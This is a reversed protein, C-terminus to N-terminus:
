SRNILSKFRRMAHRVHLYRDFSRQSISEFIRPNSLYYADVRELSYLDSLATVKGLNTSCAAAFTEKAIQRVRDDHRGYPYAFTPAELGLMDELTKKSGAMEALVDRGSLKTLDKHTRTHGGFEVGYRSLEKVQGWSLMESRPLEPPNGPWDNFKGCHDTVLFVTATLGFEELVPFATTCFNQFGDDFTLVVTESSVRRNELFENILESLTVTRYGSISLFEMQRRFKDPATSVVSGSGDVSHYTLIPIRTMGSQRAEALQVM